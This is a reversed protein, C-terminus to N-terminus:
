AKKVHNKFIISILWFITTRGICLCTQNAHSLKYKQKVSGVLLEISKVSHFLNKTKFIFGIIKTKHKYFGYMYAISVIYMLHQHCLHMFFIAAVRM